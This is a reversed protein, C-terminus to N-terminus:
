LYLFTLPLVTFSAFKSRVLYFVNIRGIRKPATERSGSNPTGGGMGSVRGFTDSPLSELAVCLSYIYVYM